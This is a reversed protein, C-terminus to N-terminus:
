GVLWEWATPDAAGWEGVPRTRMRGEGLLGALVAVRAGDAGDVCLGEIAGVLAGGWPAAPVLSLSLEPRLGEGAAWRWARGIAELGPMGVIGFFAASLRFDGRVAAEASWDHGSRVVGVCPFPASADVPAWDPALPGMWGPMCACRAGPDSELADWVRAWQEWAGWPWRMLYGRDVGAVRGLWRLREEVVARDVVPGPGSGLERVFHWRAVADDSVRGM